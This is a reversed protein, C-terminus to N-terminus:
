CFAMVSQAEAEQACFSHGRCLEAGPPSALCSLHRQRSTKLQSFRTGLPEQTPHAEDFSARIM